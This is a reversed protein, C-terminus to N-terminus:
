KKNDQLEVQYVSDLFRKQNELEQKENDIRQLDIADKQFKENIQTILNKVSINMENLYEQLRVSDIKSKNVEQNLLHARTKAVIVRSHISKTNLTDPINKSISDLQSVLLLSKTQITEITNNNITKVEAEFDEYAGWHMVETKANETLSPFKFNSNGYLSTNLQQTEPIPSEEESNNGCAILLFCSILTLLIKM